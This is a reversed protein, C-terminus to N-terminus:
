PVDLNTVATAWLCLWGLERVSDNLRFDKLSRCTGFALGGIKKLKPPAVFSELSCGFFARFEIEELESNEGFSVSKLNKCGFFPDERIVRLARPLM